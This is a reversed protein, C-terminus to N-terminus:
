KRHVTFDRHLLAAAKSNADVITRTTDFPFHDVYETNVPPKHKNIFAAEVRVRHADAVGGFSYCLENGPRVHKKWDPLKEHNQIRGQVNASEGIYLLNLLTVKGSEPQYTCEYVCYVGSKAPIGLKNKERWYGDFTVNFTQEM